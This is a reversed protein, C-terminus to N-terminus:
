PGEKGSSLREFYRRNMEEWGPPSPDRMGGLIEKQIEGPLNSTADQRLQFQGEAYQKVHGLGDALVKRQRLANQYRGAKLDREVQAMLEIMKKLDTHHYNLVQFQLDIGEAKNRLSAQRGALRKMDREGPSRSQPGELGEAGQGSEKGGGTAGGVPDKSHDKIQGKEFPDPTLRSATKRGGKGVAEDGVFEGSSKGSRGEGARGSMESTNPLRNGTVGKASMNSIPGDMADWGAGKDLSDAASSSIDEMEDFLDEEEEMLEGILDELEGPLEAMPAEKDADTLSEEQSWRERDPSDPLWKEMNTLIEEAMEYGLQELPVAIDATKKTLADEAMKLETQIEVLEKLMSPNSFDQEALKSLDTHLEKMFRSWDDEAAALQKMLEEEKETFDEVPRKALNETAEIVKKQQKLFEALKDRAEELKKKVDDPLDGGPRNAMEALIDAEARRTEDLLKRLTQIITEQTQGLSTAPAALKDPRKIRALEDGQRVAEIMPGVALRNLSRRIERHPPPVNSAISEVLQATSKQIEIQRARVRGAAAQIEDERQLKVVRVTDTHARLQIMLIKYIATRLSDLQELTAEASDQPTVIRVAHWPGTTSQPTLRMDWRPMAVQRKDWAIGRLLITQGPRVHEPDLKLRHRRTATKGEDLDTWEKLTVVPSSDADAGPADANTEVRRMEIKLRGLGHDDAGRVLVVVDDGPAATTQRGPKLLQVSPPADPLVRIRNVRPEPDSYGADDELQITFTGNETMPVNTVHLLMGKEEIDGRCEFRGLTLHGRAIPVSPRIRLEAVTFQPAELDATKQTFSEDPRNLYDPFHYTVDVSQVTPKERLRVEFRETQSDGIELRYTMPETVSPLTLRFQTGDDSTTMPLDAERGDPTGIWATAEYPTGEPNRITALIELRQGALLDVDGPTVELIEVSGVSPVFRWPALLRGAASGWNPLLLHGVIALGILVGLLGLSEVLDRPTQMSLRFRRWRGQRTAAQNFRAGALGEAAQRTAAEHFPGDDRPTDQGLQVLNILHSGLEPCELEVRRAAAERSREG